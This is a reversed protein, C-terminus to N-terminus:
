EVVEESDAFINKSSLERVLKKLNTWKYSRKRMEKFYSTNTLYERFGDDEVLRVDVTHPVVLELRGKPGVQLVLEKGDRLVVTLSVSDNEKVTWDSM